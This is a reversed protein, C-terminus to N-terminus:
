KGALRGLSNVVIARALVAAHERGRTKAAFRRPAIDLRIVRRLLAPEVRKTFHGADIHAFQRLGM